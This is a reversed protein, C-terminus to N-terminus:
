FYDVFFLWVAHDHLVATLRRQFERQPKLSCAYGDDAGAGVHDIRGFVALAELLKQLTQTQALRWVGCGAGFCLSQFFCRGQTVGQHHTGAIYETTARHFDDM